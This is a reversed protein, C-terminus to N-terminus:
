EHSGGPGSPPSPPGPGAGFRRIYGKGGCRGCRGWRLSTSGSNRRGGKCSPCRRYPHWQLNLWWIVVVVIAILVLVGSGTV